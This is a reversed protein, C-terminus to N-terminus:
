KILDLPYANIISEENWCDPVETGFNELADSKIKISAQKLAANVHICAFDICFQKLPSFVDNTRVEQADEETFTENRKGSETRFFNILAEEITPIEKVNEM